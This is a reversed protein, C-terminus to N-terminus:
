AEVLETKPLIPVVNSIEVIYDFIREVRSMAKMISVAVHQKGGSYTEIYQRTYKMNAFRGFQSALFCASLEAIVENLDREEDKYNNIKHDVAHSIEHLFTQESDTCMAIRNEQVSFYGYYSFTYEATVEIGMKEAVDMLPLDEPVKPMEVKNEDGDTDRIDFEAQRRFGFLFQDPKGEDNLVPNGDKDKKNVLLPATIYLARAGKKVYRGIEKWSNYTRCDTGKQMVVLMRNFMSWGYVPANEPVSFKAKNMTGAVEKGDKLRQVMEDLFKKTDETM